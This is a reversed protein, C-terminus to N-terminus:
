APARCPEKDQNLDLSPRWGECSRRPLGFRCGRAQGYLHMARLRAKFAKRARSYQDLSLRARPDVRARSWPRAVRARKKHGTEVLRSICHGFASVYGGDQDDAGTGDHDALRAFEVIRAGLRDLRQLFLAVPDDEDIGIRGGDHSVRIQRVRGIDLRDGRFDDGLDDFLLAAVAGLAERQQRGHAALGRQVARQREALLARQLFEVDLHDAGGRIGDVLGLVALAKALRHGFDPQLRWARHLDLVQRVRQAREVHDVERGQDARGERHAAGAAADGVGLGFEDLDDLAADVGRRGGFHQDLFGHEAPFLELHLDNAVLVVIADDDARDLVDIRHAHM